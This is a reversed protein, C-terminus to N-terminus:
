LHVGALLAGTAATIVAVLVPLLVAYLIRRPLDARRKLDAIEDSAMAHLTSEIGEVSKSLLENSAALKAQDRIGNDLRRSNEKVIGELRALRENYEGDM